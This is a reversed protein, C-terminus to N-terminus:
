TRLEWKSTGKIKSAIESLLLPPVCGPTISCLRTHCVATHVVYGGVFNIMIKYMYHYPPPDSVSSRFFLRALFAIGVVHVRVGTLM